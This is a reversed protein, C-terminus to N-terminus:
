RGRGLLDEQVQQYGPEPGIKAPDGGPEWDVRKLPYLIRNNSYVRRKYGINYTAVPTKLPINFTKGRATISWPQLDPYKENYYFPRIRVIRDNKYDVAMDTCLLQYCTKEPELAPPVVGDGGVTTTVTKTVTAGDGGVTTTVTATAGDGVTTTVTTPVSVTKTTTVVEGDGKGAVLPYTIGAGIAGGVVVAGAGVLFDRRSVEGREKKKDEKV